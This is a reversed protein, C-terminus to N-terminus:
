LGAVKSAVYTMTLWLVAMFSGALLALSGHM